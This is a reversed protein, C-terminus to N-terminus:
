ELFVPRHFCHTVLIHSISAGPVNMPEQFQLNYPLWGLSQVKSIWLVWCEHTTCVFFFAVFACLHTCYVESPPLPHNYKFQSSQNPGPYIHILAIIYSNNYVNTFTITEFKRPQTIQLSGMESDDLARTGTRQGFPDSIYPPSHHM